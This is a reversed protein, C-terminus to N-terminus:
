KDPSINFVGVKPTYGNAPLLEVNALGNGSVELREIGNLASGDVPAMSVTAFFPALPNGSCAPDLSCSSVSRGEPTILNPSLTTAAGADAHSVGSYAASLMVLTIAPLVKLHSLMIKAQVPMAVM